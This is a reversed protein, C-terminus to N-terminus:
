TKVFFPSFCLILANRLAHFRTFRGGTLTGFAGGSSDWNKEKAMKEVVSGLSQAERKVADVIDKPCELMSTWAGHETGDDRIVHCYATIYWTGMYKLLGGEIGVGYITEGAAKQGAKEMAAKARAVGGKKIDENFPQDLSDVLVAEVQAGGLQEPFSAIAETIANIKTRNTSGLIIRIRKM